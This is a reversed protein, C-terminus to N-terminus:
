TTVQPAALDGFSAEGALLEGLTTAQLGAVIVQVQDALGRALLARSGDPFFNRDLAAAMADSDNADLAASYSGARGYFSKAVDRMRRKMGLDGVGTERISRDMDRVFLDFVDQGLAAGTEGETRLRRLLLVLHLVILDFRGDVTDPVGLERYFLPRRARDVIARYHLEPVSVPRAKSFLGFM